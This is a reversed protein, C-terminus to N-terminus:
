DTRVKFINVNNILKKIKDYKGSTLASRIIPICAPYSKLDPTTVLSGKYSPLVGSKASM